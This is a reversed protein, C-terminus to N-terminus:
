EASKLSEAMDIRDMKRRMVLDVIVSFLIVFGLAYFYSPPLIRVMFTVTDMEIQAIVFAHLAIGLPIGAAFGMLVLLVNERFVYAGTERRNFGLVKVTAIERIRETININNLNFLVIFALAAACGIILIVVRNLKGVTERFQTRLDNVVLWTEVTDNEGIYAAYDYDSVDESGDENGGIMLTDPVYREGFVEEYTKDSMYAYHFIFNDFVYGIKVSVEQGDDGVGFTIMDGAKLGNKAALKSSIAITGDEPWPMENGDTRAKLLSTVEADGSAFLTVERIADSGNHKLNVAKLLASKRKVGFHTDADDKVKQMDSPKVDDMFTFSIDYCLIEDFQLDVIGDISDRLGFGTILLATCGAIGIIMMWMRKKFRFVNRLSIKHTFRLKKWIFGIRELLIRKGPTPAKPRILEAPMGRLEALATVITVGVSCLLSVSMSVVFLGFDSEFEVPAFGYMMDYVMWIVFPFLKTGVLYGLLGGTVSASGSYIVYKMIISFESYGLARMTGIQTREDSVMRQMTTSCVLAAIAFFFVPFVDAIGAVINADNEFAMYGVNTDRGLVYLDPKIYKEGDLVRVTSNLTFLASYLCGKWGEQSRKDIIQKVEKSVIKKEKAIFEEYEDSYTKYETDCFIFADTYVSTNLGGQPVYVFFMLSGTGVDTNPRQFNLYYPSRAIGVVTYEKYRFVGQKKQSNADTIIVKKGLVEEHCKYDDLVVENDKEPMRGATLRLENVGETITHFRVAEGEHDTGKVDVIVDEATAKCVAKVGKVKSIEEIEDDTFGVTSILRLDYLKTEKIFKDGTKIFSPMTLSLGSYFGVGLAIIALIAIFRAM